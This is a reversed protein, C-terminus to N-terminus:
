DYLKNPQWARAYGARHLSDGNASDTNKMADQDAIREDAREAANDGTVVM